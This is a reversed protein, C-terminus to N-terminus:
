PGDEEAPEEPGGWRPHRNVIVLAPRLVAGRLRYGPRVVDVVEGEPLDPRDVVACAEHCRDDFPRGLAPIPEVGFSRGLNRARVQLLALGERLSRPDEEAPPSSPPRDAPEALDLLRLIAQDLDILARRQASNLAAGDEGGPTSVAGPRSGDNEGARALRGLADELRGQLSEEALAHKQLSRRLRGM